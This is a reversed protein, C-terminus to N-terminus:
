TYFMDYCFFFMLRNIKYTFKGTFYIFVFRWKYKYYFNFVNCTLFSNMLCDNRIPSIAVEFLCIVKYKLELDELALCVKAYALASPKGINSISIKFFLIVPVCNSSNASLSLM